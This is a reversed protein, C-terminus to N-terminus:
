EEILWKSLDSMTIVGTMMLSTELDLLDDSDEKYLNKYRQQMNNSISTKLSKKTVGNDLLMQTISFIDEENGEVIALYLDEKLEDNVHNKNATAAQEMVSELPNTTTNIWKTGSSYDSNIAKKAVANAYAWINEVSKYKYYDSGSYFDETQMLDHLLEYATQGRITSYKVYEDASMHYEKGNVSFSKAGAKLKVNGPEPFDKAVATDYLDSLMKEVEDPSEISKSYGPLLLNNLVRRWFSGNSEENGWSDMYPMGNKSLFPLKNQVSQVFYQVDNLGKINKDTYTTRRTDDIIRAIAGFFSPVFQSAYTTAVRTGLKSFMDDGAYGATQVLNKVGQLVSLNIMPDTIGRMADGFMLMLDPIDSLDFGDGFTEKGTNQWADYLKGGMLIPMAATGAWDIAINQGFIDISNKQKDELEDEEIHLVGISALLFGLGVAGVGGTIGMTLRDFYEASSIKGNKLKKLDVTLAKVLGVPSFDIGRALVNAPTNKFPLITNIAHAGVKGATGMKASEKEMKSLWQAFQNANNFTNKYADNLAHQVAANLLEPELNNLDANQAQLYSALSKKFFVNKWFLDEKALWKSNFDSAAAMWKPGKQRYEEIKALANNSATSTSNGKLADRKTNAIIEAFEKYEKKVPGFARTRDGESKFLQLVSSLKDRTAVYPYYLAVGAVNKAHTLPNGLMALYRWTSEWDKFSYPMSKAIERYADDLHQNILKSDGDAEALAKPLWKPVAVRTNKGSAEYAANIKNVAKQVYKLQAEPSMRNYINRMALSQALQTGSERVMFALSAESDSDGLEKALKCLVYAEVQGEPSLLNTDGRLMMDRRNQYGDKSIKDVALALNKKESTTTYFPDKLLKQKTEDTLVNTNQATEVAFQSEKQGNQWNSDIGSRYKEIEENIVDDSPLSFRIDHNNPDFTGVNNTASKIQRSDFVVTETPTIIGDYNTGNVENFLEIAAVFDGVATANIDQLADFDNRGKLAKLVSDVTAGYGYNDLGYDEDEAVAELFTRMQKPTIKKDGSEANLPNQISLYYSRVDGYQKAHEESDTFYFGRGYLNSPKSKKRDFVNIEEGGGRYMIKPSGDDNVVKSEGFWRKFNKIEDANSVEFRSENSFRKEGLANELVKEIKRISEIEPDNVGRLKNIFEKIGDLIRQAVTPKEAALREFSKPDKGIMESFRKAVLEEMIVDDDSQGVESSYMEKLKNFDAQQREADGDYAVELVAASFLGWNESEKASHVVEHSLVAKILDGQTANQDLVIRGNGIYAGNFIGHSDIFEIELGFKNKFQKVVRTMSDSVPKTKGEYSMYRERVKAKVDEPANNYFREVFDDAELALVNDAERKQEAAKAAEQKQAELAEKRQQVDTKAQERAAVMNAATQAKFDANAKDLNKKALIANRKAAESRERAKYQLNIAEKLAQKAKDDGPNANFRNQAEVVAQHAAEVEAEARDMEQQANASQERAKDLASTDVQGSTAIINATADAQADFAVRADYETMVSQNNVDENYAAILQDGVNKANKSDVRANHLIAWSRSRESVSGMAIAQILGVPDEAQFLMKRLIRTNTSGVINKAAANAEMDSLGFSQLVGAVTATQQVEGVGEQMSTSLAAEARQVPTGAPQETQAPQEGEGLVKGAAYGATSTLGGSIGGVLGSYLVDTLIDKNAQQEAEEPSLGAAIYQQIAAERNSMSQMILEDSIAGLVSSLAEEGAESAFGTLVESLFGRVGTSGAKFAGLMKDIQSHETASEIVASALGFALARDDSAGRMSADMVASNFGSLGLILSGYKGGIMASVGSDAASTMADYFTEYIAYLVKNDGFVKQAGEKTGTRLDGKLQNPLFTLSYPNIDNGAVKSVVTSLASLAEMPTLAVSGITAVASNIESEAAWEQVRESRDEASRVYLNESLADFYATANEEGETMFKYKYNNREEPTMSMALMVTDSKEAAGLAIAAEPDYVAHMVVEAHSPRSFWVPKYPQYQADFAAVQQDYDENEQLKHANLLDNQTKLDEAQQRMNKVYQEPLGMIEANEILANLVLIDRANSGRQNTLVYDGYEKTIPGEASADQYADYARWVKPVGRTYAYAMEYTAVAANYQDTGEGYVEALDDMVDAVTQRATDAAAKRDAMDATVSEAHGRMTEWEQWVDMSTKGSEPDVAAMDLIGFDDMTPLEGAAYKEPFYKQLFAQEEEDLVDTFGVEDNLADWAGFMNKNAYAHVAKQQAANAQAATGTGNAVMDATTFVVDSYGANATVRFAKREADTAVPIYEPLTVDTNLKRLEESNQKSEDPMYSGGMNDSLMQDYQDTTYDGTVQHLYADAGTQLLYPDFDIAATTDIPQGSKLSERMKKLHDYEGLEIIKDVDVPQGAELLRAVDNNFSQAEANMAATNQVAKYIKGYDANTDPNAILHRNNDLWEQNFEYTGYKYALEDMTSGVAYPNYEASTPDLRNATKEDPQYQKGRGLVSQVADLMYDGTSKNPNRAAWLVGYMADKSYGVADTLALPSGSKRGDDMKALTPYNKWNVRAVIEDDSYNRSPHQAWWALEKSLEAWEQQAKLTNNLNTKSLSTTTASTYPNYIPSAPDNLEAQYMQMLSDRKSPNQNGVEYIRALTERQTPKSGKYWNSEMKPMAKSALDTIPQFTKQVTNKVSSVTSKKTNSANYESLRKQGEASKAYAQVTQNAKKKLDDLFAM